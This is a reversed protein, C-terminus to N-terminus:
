SFYFCPQPKDTARNKITINLFPAPEGDAGKLIRGQQTYCHNCGVPGTDPIVAFYRLLDQKLNDMELSDSSKRVFDDLYKRYEKITRERVKQATKFSIFKETAEYLSKRTKRVNKVRM